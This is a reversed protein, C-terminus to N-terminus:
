VSHKLQEHKRLNFICAHRAGAHEAAIALYKCFAEEIEKCKAAGDPSLLCLKCCFTCAM